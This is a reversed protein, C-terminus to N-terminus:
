PLSKHNDPPQEAHKFLYITQGIIFVLTLGLTGFLKFDVWISTPYHFAVFLNLGGMGAFFLVWAINLRHWILTPLHLNTNLMRQLFTKGSMFYESAFLVLAFLWYIATPKWKIFVDNHFLLTFLGLIVIISSSAILMGEVRRYRLWVYGLQVVAAVVVVATAAYIGKYQYTIFFLIIPLFDFLLKM